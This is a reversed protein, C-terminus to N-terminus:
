TPAPRLKSVNRPSRKPKSPGLITVVPVPPITQHDRERQKVGFKSMKQKVVRPYHRNRREPLLRELIEDRVKEMFAGIHQVAKIMYRRIIKLTNLFSTRDPDIGNRDATDAMTSRLAFHICLHAWVEQRVGQPDKTRLVVGAGRLFTKVEGIGREIEWRQVYLGALDIAPGARHDLITTIMRYPEADQDGLSYEIVRVLIPDTHGTDKSSYIHSLYSGDPLTEIPELVATSKMRWLLDAGTESAKRWLAFSYFGRDAINLTDAELRTVLCHALNVESVNRGDIEADFIAHTGLEILGVVRVQPFAAQGRAAGPRSFAEENAPTDAVDLVTGDIATLRWHKYWAGKTEATAIPRAVKRFLAEVPEPGLRKRAKIIATDSPEQQDKPWTGDEILADTFKTILEIYSDDAWLSMALCFYMTLNSPLLRTRQEWRETDDLVERVVKPPFAHTLFGLTHERKRADQKRQGIRAM